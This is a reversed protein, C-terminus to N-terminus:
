PKKILFVEFDSCYKNFEFKGYNEGGMILRLFLTLFLIIFGM